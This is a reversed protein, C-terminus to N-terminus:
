EGPLQVSYRIVKVTGEEDEVAIALLKDRLYITQISSNEETRLRSSYLYKGQPSFIDIDQNRRGTPNALFVYIFGRDDIALDEFYSAKQPLGDMIRKLIDQPIDGMGITMEKKIASTIKMPEREEISFSIKKHDKLNVRNITYSDSMGYYVQNDRYKVMMMPTVGGFVAVITVTRNASRDSASAEKFAKYQAIIKEKQNNVDYWRINATKGGKAEPIVPASIFVDDSVFERPKLRNSYVISKKFTGDLTFYSIRARDVIIVRQNVVFLQDGMSFNRIEGPGEGKKGFSSIFKGKPSYIFIKYNKSDMIYIRGDDAAAIEQVSGIVDNGAEEVEWNKKMQFDWKGKLPNDPNKVWAFQPATLTFLLMVLVVIKMMGGIKLGVPV